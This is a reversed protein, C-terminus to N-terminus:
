PLKAERSAKGLAARAERRWGSGDHYYETRRRIRGAPAMHGTGLASPLGCQGAVVLVSGCSIVFPDPRPLTFGAGRICAGYSSPADM